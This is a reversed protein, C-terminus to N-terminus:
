LDGERFASPWDFGFKVHMTKLFHSGIHIYIVWAVYGLHDGHGYM